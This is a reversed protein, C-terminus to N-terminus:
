CPRGSHDGAKGDKSIGFCPHRRSRRQTTLLWFEVAALVADPPTNLFCDAVDYEECGWWEKTVALRQMWEASGSHLQWMPLHNPLHELVVKRAETALVALARAVRRLATRLHKCHTMLPRVKVVPVAVSSILSKQKVTWYSQPRSSVGSPTRGLWEASGAVAALFSNRTRKVFDPDEEAPLVTLQQYRQNQLFTTNQLHTVGGSM